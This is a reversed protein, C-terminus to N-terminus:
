VERNTPLTLHTYSVAIIKKLTLYDGFILDNQSDINTNTDIIELRYKKDNVNTYNGLAYHLYDEYKYFEDTILTAKINKIEDSCKAESSHLYNIHSLILLIVGIFVYM